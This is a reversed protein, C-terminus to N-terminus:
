LFNNKKLSVIEFIYFLMIAIFINVIYFNFVTKGNGMGFNRVREGDFMIKPKFYWITVTLVIYIFILINLDQRVDFM